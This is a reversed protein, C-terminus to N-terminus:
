GAVTLTIERSLDLAVHQGDGAQVCLAHDGPPLDIEASTEARWLHIDQDDTPIAQGPAVCCDDVIVHLHGAGDEVAGAIALEFGTVRAAVRVPSSVTAGDTPETLTLTPSESSCSTLFLLAAAAAAPIWRRM